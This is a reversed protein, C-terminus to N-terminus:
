WEILDIKLSHNAARTRGMQQEGQVCISSTTSTNSNWFVTMVTIEVDLVANPEIYCDFKVEM